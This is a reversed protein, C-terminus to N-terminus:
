ETRSIGSKKGGAQKEQQTNEVKGDCVELQSFFSCSTKSDCNSGLIQNKNRRGACVKKIETIKRATVGHKQLDLLVARHWYSLPLPCPLFLQLEGLCVCSSGIGMILM